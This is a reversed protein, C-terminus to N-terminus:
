PTVVEYIRLHHEGALDESHLSILTAGLDVTIANQFTRSKTRVFEAGVNLTHGPLLLYFERLGNNPNSMYKAMEHDTVYILIRKTAESPPISALRGVDNFIAGAQHPRPRNFTSSLERNYKFEIALKERAFSPVYTDIKAKEIVPHPAELIIEEPKLGANLLAAFFTYRISDETTLVGKGFRVSLFESFCCFVETIQKDFKSKM